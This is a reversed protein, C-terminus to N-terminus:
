RKPEHSPPPPPPEPSPPAADKFDQKLEVSAKELKSGPHEIPPKLQEQAKAQSQAVQEQHQAVNKQHEQQALVQKKLLGDREAYEGAQKQDRINKEKQQQEVAEDRKIQEDRFLAKERLQEQYVQKDVGRRLNDPPRYELTNKHQRIEENVLNQRMKERLQEAANKEPSNPDKHKDFELGVDPANKFLPDDDAM